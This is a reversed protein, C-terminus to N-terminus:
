AEGHRFRTTKYYDAFLKADVKASATISGAFALM